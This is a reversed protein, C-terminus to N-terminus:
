TTAPTPAEGPEGGTDAALKVAEAIVTAYDPLTLGMKELREAGEGGFLIKGIELLDTFSKNEMRPLVSLVTVAENNVTLTEGKIQIQPKEAFSLKDTIDIIKM